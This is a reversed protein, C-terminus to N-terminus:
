TKILDPSEDRQYIGVFFMGVYFTRLYYINPLLTTFIIFKLESMYLKYVFIYYKFRLILCSINNCMFIIEKSIFVQM